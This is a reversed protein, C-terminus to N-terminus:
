VISFKIYVVMNHDKGELGVDGLIICANENTQYESRVHDM